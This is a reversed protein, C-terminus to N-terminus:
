IVRLRGIPAEVVHLKVVGEAVTQRPVEVVVSQYGKARYANELAEQAAKVDEATRGPGMHPYVAAELTAEDLLTNGDVDIADIEFTPLAAAAPPPPPTDARAAAGGLASAGAALALWCRVAVRAPATTAPHRGSM